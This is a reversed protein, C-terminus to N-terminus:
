DGEERDTVEQSVGDFELSKDAILFYM